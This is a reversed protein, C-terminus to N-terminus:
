ERVRLTRVSLTRHRYLIIHTIHHPTKSGVRDVTFLRLNSNDSRAVAMSSEFTPQGPYGKLPQQMNSQGSCIWVEGLLVNELVLESGEGKISITHKDRSDNTSVEIKWNGEQDATTNLPENLWSAEVTVREEPDAWGWLVVSTNRQLVMNSSVIAPLKVDASAPVLVALLLITSYIKKSNIM